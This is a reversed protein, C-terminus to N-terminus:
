SLDDPRRDAPSRGRGGSRRDRAWGFVDGAGLMKVPRRAQAGPVLAHEVKGSIIIYIDDATDGANYILAGRDYSVLRGLAAIKRLLDEGVVQFPMTRKLIAIMQRPMIQQAVPDM